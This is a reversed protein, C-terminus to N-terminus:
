RFKVPSPAFMLTASSSFKLLPLSQSRRRGFLPRSSRSDGTSSGGASRVLGGITATYIPDDIAYVDTSGTAAPTFTLTGCTILELESRDIRMANPRTATNAATASGIEFGDCGSEFSVAGSGADIPSFIFANQATIAIPANM